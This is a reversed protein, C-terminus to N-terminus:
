PPVRCPTGTPTVGPPMLIPVTFILSWRLCQHAFSSPLHVIGLYSGLRTEVNGEPTCILLHYHNGMLCYAYVKVRFRERMAELLELFHIGDGRGSFIAERNHGRSTVHYWGGGVRIRVHRAM